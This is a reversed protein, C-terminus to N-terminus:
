FVLKSSNNIKWFIESFNDFRTLWTWATVKWLKSSEKDLPLNKWMDEKPSDLASSYKLSGSIDTANTLYLMLCIELDTKIVILQINIM